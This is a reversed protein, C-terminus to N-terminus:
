DAAKSRDEVRVPIGPLRHEVDVQMHDASTMQSPGGALLRLAKPLEALTRIVPVGSARLQSESAHPDAGRHLLVAAMGIRLAGEVDQRVSDGVMVADGPTVNLRALAERFISAHPKMMGHDSSSVAGAILGKLDFHAQFSDLCRHSNSVLGIRLGAGTLENLAPKVDDYLEFHKCAAWEDYVERACADLWDGEGGMHRIIQRVYRVFIEADYLPDPQDDLLPAASSVAQEFTSIDVDIGYRECFRRYGEAGFTPGPYILTFDVDFLVARTM